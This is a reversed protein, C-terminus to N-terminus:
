RLYVPNSLLWLRGAVRAEARYAGPTEVAHEVHTRAAATLIPEGDRRLTVDAPRPLRLRLTAPGAPAEAGM